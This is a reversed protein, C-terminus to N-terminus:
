AIVKVQKKETSPYAENAVRVREITRQSKAVGVIMVNVHDSYIATSHCDWLRERIEAFDDGFQKYRFHQFVSVVSGETVQGLVRAVDEYRVHQPTYGKPEFGNDPDLFVLQDHKSDFGAFYDARNDKTLLTDGCHLRVQYTAGTAEPLDRIREPDRSARLQHCLDIVCERAPFEEPESRGHTNKKGDPRMMLAVTLQAYGLERTLYDLYDWKFSDKADGLFRRQM